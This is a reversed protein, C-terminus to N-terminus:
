TDSYILLNYLQFHNIRESFIQSIVVSFDAIKLSHWGAPVQGHEPLAQAEEERMEQELISVLKIWTKTTKTTTDDHLVSRQQKQQQAM